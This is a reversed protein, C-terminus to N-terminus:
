RTQLVCICHIRCSVCTTRCCTSTNVNLEQINVLGTRYWYFASFSFSSLLLRICFNTPLRVFLNPSVQWALECERGGMEEFAAKCKICWHAVLAALIWKNIVFDSLIFRQRFVSNFLTMCVFFGCIVVRGRITVFWVNELRFPIHTSYSFFTLFPAPRSISCIAPLTTYKDWYKVLKICLIQKV